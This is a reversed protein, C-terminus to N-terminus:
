GLVLTALLPIQDTGATTHLGFRLVFHLAIGAISLGAIFASKRQWLRAPSYWPPGFPVERSVKSFAEKEPRGAPSIHAPNKM